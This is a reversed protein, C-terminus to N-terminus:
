TGRPKARLTPDAGAPDEPWPHRPYRARMDKRVDAYSSQWFGPLDMTTQVPRRAPSLLTLRLPRGAVTPHTTTGFLEQLRLEIEPHDGSYDIPAKNGLPTTFHPPAIRNLTETQTWDLMAALAPHLDFAKWDAATAVGTLHPLLWTELTNLLAADAMDPLDAGTERALAVRARLRQAAPSPSLGLARVGDMMATALAHAPADNWHRDELVLAGFRLQQRATVRRARKDWACHDHWTMDAGHVQALDAQSLEIAQRIKAERPHGDTDTVVLLRANALPDDAALYAGKGGSLVYRPDDGKRRLAVRDPFALTAQQAPSLATKPGALPNLRKQEARVRDLTARDPTYPHRNAFARPNQLASLRLALDVPAGRLIDREALLAALPAASPGGHRLMHALRPHLPMAVLHRGHETIQNNRLAGLSTLLAQAEGYAGPPPPTLFPLDAPDAVGWLALELVLAALDAAEIEAPPFAPLAGEEAKAWLRYCTGSAVRGARGRRQEAEARTVRETVLRSMGSGPDFRARRSRGGDIVVRVDQLTLSTEAIATSLVLKRGTQAPEIAARQAAFPLAGYLPRLAVDGPLRGNLAQEVRRIEGEGPLFALLGGTTEGVAQAILEAMATEFRTGKPLPRDLWRTEVPFARGQSTILPANGMLTAVPDADLTASMVVLMLDDRLAARIELCLALGLDANLSREHFEDFIIAAVGPLEANSQIMRTLIGETVVEIRTARGVKAEGRIRYGVTEGVKEGLTDAMREAAARAALRRPELMIIRGKLLLGQLMALPVRTTKGAGPPAQLVAHNHSRLADLLDPLADDIPLRM